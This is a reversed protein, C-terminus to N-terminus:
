ERMIEALKEQLWKKSVPIISDEAGYTLIKVPINEEFPMLCKGAGGETFSCASRWSPMTPYSRMISTANMGYFRCSTRWGPTPEQNLKSPPLMWPLMPKQIGGLADFIRLSQGINVHRDCVLSVSASILAAIKEDNPARITELTRARILTVAGSFPSTVSTDALFREIEGNAHKWSQAWKLYRRRRETQSSSTVNSLEVTWREFASQVVSESVRLPPRCLKPSLLTRPDLLASIAYSKGASQTRGSEGKCLSLGYWAMPNDPAVALSRAFALAAEDSKGADRLLWAEMEHALAAEHPNKQHLTKISSIAEDRIGKATKSHTDPHLAADAKLWIQLLPTHITDAQALIEPLLSAKTSDNVDKFRQISAEKESLRYTALSKRLRYESITLPICRAAYWRERWASSPLDNSPGTYLCGALIATAMSPAAGLPLARRLFFVLGLAGAGFAATQTAYQVFPQTENAFSTCWAATIGAASLGCLFVGFWLSKTTTKFLWTTVAIAVAMVIAAPYDGIGISTVCGGLSALLWPWRLADRKLSGAHEVVVSWLIVFGWSLIPNIDYAQTRAGDFSWYDWGPVLSALAMVGNQRAMWEGLIHMFAFYGSLVLVLASLGGALANLRRSLM